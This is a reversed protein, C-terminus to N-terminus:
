PKFPDSFRKDQVFSSDTLTHLFQIIQAKETPTLALTLGFEENSANLMLPDANPTNREFHDNYHDLVQELTQFRGDHMYPATLAINRLSPVRFKGNDTPLQTVLARGRDAFTLDLGNNRFEHDTQLDGGHCDGCNGGRIGFSPDPHVYFLQRGREEDRTLATQQRRWRDYKSNGSILTREFQALAKLIQEETIPTTGFTGQFLKPYQADQQLKSVSAALSQHMEVPNELPLRAQQELSSSAGDWNLRPEWLLNALSM